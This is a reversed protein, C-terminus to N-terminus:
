LSVLRARISVAEIQGLYRNREAELSRRESDSVASCFSTAASYAPFTVPGVDFLDLDNLWRVDIKVGDIEEQEWTVSTPMFSFSSGDVDGRDVMSCVSAWQPDTESEDIEYALGTSDVSLRLTGSSVRGLVWDDDHNFLGRVDQAEAIARDFASPRIREFCNAWLQYQTGPNSRDYFVAAYGSIKKVDNTVARKVANHPLRGAKSRKQISM